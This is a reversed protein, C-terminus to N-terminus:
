VRAKIRVEDPSDERVVEIAYIPDGKLAAFPNMASKEDGIWISHACYICCCRTM